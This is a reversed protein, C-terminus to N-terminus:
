LMKVLSSSPKGLKVLFALRLIERKLHSDGNWFEFCNISEKMFYQQVILGAVKITM